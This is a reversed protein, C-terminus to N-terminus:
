QHRHSTGLGTPPPKRISRVLLYHGRIVSMSAYSPAVMLVLSVAAVLVVIALIRHRMSVREEIIDHPSSLPKRRTRENEM